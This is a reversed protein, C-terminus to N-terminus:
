LQRTDGECITLRDEAGSAAFWGCGGGLSSVFTVGSADPVNLYLTTRMDNIRVVASSEGVAVITIGTSEGEKKVGGGIPVPAKSGSDDSKSKKTESDGSQSGTPTKGKVIGSPPSSSQTETSKGSSKATSKGSSQGGGSPQTGSDSDEKLEAPLPAFPDRYVGRPQRAQVVTEESPEAAESSPPVHTPEATIPVASGGSLLKFGVFLLLGGLAVALMIVSRRNDQVFTSM